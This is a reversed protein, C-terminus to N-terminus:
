NSKKESDKNKASESEPLAKIIKKSNMM